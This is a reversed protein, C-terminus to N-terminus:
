PGSGDASRTDRSLRRMAQRGTHVGASWDRRGSLGILEGSQADELRIVFISEKKAGEAPPVALLASIINSGEVLGKSLPRSPLCPKRGIFLPRAPCDLAAACEELTPAEDAPELRLAVTLAADARYHRYRIHPSDYTSGGGARGEPKGHTTWGQDKKALKATQFDRLEEGVRDIRVGHVLRDQLRQHPLSDGRRFGLANALLGTLMSADPFDRTPGNADIAERGFAMLPAELRLILFAPV